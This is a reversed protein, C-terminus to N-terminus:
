VGDALGGLLDGAVGLAGEAVATIGDIAVDLVTDSAVEIGVDAIVEGIDTGTALVDSKRNPKQMM